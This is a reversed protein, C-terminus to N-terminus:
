AAILVKVVRYTIFGLSFGAILATTVCGYIHIGFGLRLGMFVWAAFVSSYILCAALKANFLGAIRDSTRKNCQHEERCVRFQGKVGLLQEIEDGTQILNNCRLIGRIEYIFLAITFAAAFLSIFAILEPSSPNGDTSLKKDGVLFIGLLSSLPLFGLLKMRFDDLAHYSKCIEEYARLLAAQDKGCSNSNEM